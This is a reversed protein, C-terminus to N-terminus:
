HVPILWIGVSQVSKPICRIYKSIHWNICILIFIWDSFYNFTSINNCFHLGLDIDLVAICYFVPWFYVATSFQSFICGPQGGINSGYQLLSLSVWFCSLVILSTFGSRLRDFYILIASNCVSSFRSHYSSFLTVHM